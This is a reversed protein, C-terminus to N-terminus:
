SVVIAIHPSSQLLDLATDCIDLDLYGLGPIGCPDRFGVRWVVIAMIMRAPM